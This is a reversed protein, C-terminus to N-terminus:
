FSYWKLRLDTSVHAIGNNGIKFEFFDEETLQILNMHYDIIYNLSNIDKCYMPTGGVKIRTSPFLHHSNYIDKVVNHLKHPINLRWKIEPFTILEKKKTWGTIKYPPLKSEINLKCQIKENVKIKRIEYNVCDENMFVQYMSDDESRPDRFQCLFFLETFDEENQFYPISGGFKEELGTEPPDVSRNQKLLKAKSGSVEPDIFAFSENVSRLPTSAGSRRLALSPLDPGIIKECIPFYAYNYFDDSLKDFDFDVWSIKYDSVVCMLLKDKEKKIKTVQFKSSEVESISPVLDVEKSEELNSTKDKVWKNCNSTRVIIWMNGDKGLQKHGANLNGASYGFGKPSPEDGTYTKKSDNICRM